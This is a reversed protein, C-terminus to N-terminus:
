SFNKMFIQFCVDARLQAILTSVLTAENKFTSSSYILNNVETINTEIYDKLQDQVENDIPPMTELILKAINLKKM